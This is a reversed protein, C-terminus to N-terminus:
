AAPLRPAIKERVLRVMDATSFRGSAWSPRMDEPVFGGAGAHFTWRCISHCPNRM